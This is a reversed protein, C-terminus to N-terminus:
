RLHRRRRHWAGAAGLLLLLGSAPEPVVVYSLTFPASDAHLGDTDVLTFDATLITGIPTGPDAMFTLHEHWLLDPSEPEGEFVHSAGDTELIPTLGHTYMSFGPDFRDRQLAVGTDSLLAYAGDEPRDTGEGDWGPEITGFYGTLPGTEIPFLEYPQDVRSPYQVQLGHADTGDQNINFDILTAGCPQAIVVAVIVALVSMISRNM